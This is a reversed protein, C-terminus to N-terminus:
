NKLKGPQHYSPTTDDCNLAGSDYANDGPNPSTKLYIKTQFSKIDSSIYSLDTEFKDSSNNKYSFTIM